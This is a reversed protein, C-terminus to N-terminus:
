RNCELNVAAIIADQIRAMKDEPVWGALKRALLARMEEESLGLFYARQQVVKTVLVGVAIAVLLIFFTRLRM